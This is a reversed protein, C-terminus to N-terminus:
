KQNMNRKSIYSGEISIDDLNKLSAKNKNGRPNSEEEAEDDAFNRPPPSM